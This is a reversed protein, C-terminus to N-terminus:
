KKQINLIFHLQLSYFSSKIFFISSAQLNCDFVLYKRQLTVILSQAFFIALYITHSYIVYCNSCLFFKQETKILNKITNMFYRFVIGLPKCIWNLHSAAKNAIEQRFAFKLAETNGSIEQNCIARSNKYATVHITKGWYIKDITNLNGVSSLKTTMNNLM